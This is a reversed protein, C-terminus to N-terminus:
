IRNKRTFFNKYSNIAGKQSKYIRYLIHNRRKKTSQKRYRSRFDRFPVNFVKSIRRAVENVRKHEVHGYEGAKDHSLIFDFRDVPYIYPVATLLLDDITKMPWSNYYGDHLTLMHGEGKIEKMTKFFELSRVRNKGNTFCLVTIENKPNLVDDAGFIIEDDPHAILVLIKM